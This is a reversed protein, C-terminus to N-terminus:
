AVIRPMELTDGARHGGEPEWTPVIVMPVVTEEARGETVCWLALGLGVPITVFGPAAVLVDGIAFGYVFWVGATVAGLSWAFATGAPRRNRIAHILHPLMSITSLLTGLVGLLALSSVTLVKKFAPRPTAGGIPRGGAPSSSWSPM